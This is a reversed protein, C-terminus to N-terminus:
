KKELRDLRSRIAHLMEEMQSQEMGEQRVEKELPALDKQIEEKLLFQLLTGTFLIFLTPGLYMLAIGIIRGAFTIPVVDGFGITTITSVGWWLSDLYSGMRPNINRELYYVVTTAALLIGNGTVALYLFTPHLFARFLKRSEKRFFRLM